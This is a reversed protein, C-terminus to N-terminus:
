FLIPTLSPLFKRISPTSGPSFGEIVEEFTADDWDDPIVGVKSLKHGSKIEQDVEMM